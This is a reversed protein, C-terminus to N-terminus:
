YLMDYWVDQTYWLGVLVTDYWEDALELVRPLKSEFNTLGTCKSGLVYQRDIRNAYASTHSWYHHTAHVGQRPQM